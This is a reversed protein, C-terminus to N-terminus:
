AIPPGRLTQSLYIEQSFNLQITKFSLRVTSLLLIIIKKRFFSFKSYQQLAKELQGLDDIDDHCDLIEISINKGHFDNFLTDFLQNTQWLQQAIDISLFGKRSIGLLYIGGDSTPGLVVDKEELQQNVQLLSNSNVQLCDNGILIINEFGKSFVHQCVSGLREGFSLGSQINENGIIVPLHTKKSLKVVHRNLEKLVKKTQNRSKSYSFSKVRVEESISRIFVVIATNGIKYNM